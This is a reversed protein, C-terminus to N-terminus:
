RSERSGDCVTKDACVGEDAVCENGATAGGTVGEHGGLVGGAVHTGVADGGEAGDGTACGRGVRLRSHLDEDLVNGALTLQGCRVSVNSVDGALRRVANGMVMGSDVVTPM